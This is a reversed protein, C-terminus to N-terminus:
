VSSQALELACSHLDASESVYVPAASGLELTFPKDTQKKLDWGVQASGTFSVHAVRFDRILEPVMENSCSIVNLLGPPLGEALCFDALCLATLASKPSPKLLVPCGAALAPALKHMVLNLPFNFPSIALLVGRSEKQ